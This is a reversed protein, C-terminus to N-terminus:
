PVCPMKGSLIGNTSLSIGPPLGGTGAAIPIFAYPPKGCAVKLTYSYLQGCHVAPVYQPLILPSGNTPCHIAADASLLASSTQNSQERGGPGLSSKVEPLHDPISQSGGLSKNGADQGSNPQGTGQGNNAGNGSVAPNPPIAAPKSSKASHTCGVYLMVVLLLQFTLGRNM